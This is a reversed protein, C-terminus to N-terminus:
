AQGAGADANAAMQQQRALYIAVFDIPDMM